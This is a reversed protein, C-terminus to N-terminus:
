RLRSSAKKGENPSSGNLVGHCAVCKTPSSESCLTHTCLTAPAEGAWPPAHQARHQERCGPRPHRGTPAWAVPSHPSALPGYHNSCTRRTFCCLALFLSTHWCGIAHRHGSDCGATLWIAVELVKDVALFIYARATWPANRISSEEIGVDKAEHARAPTNPDCDAENNPEKEAPTTHESVLCLLLAMLEALSACHTSVAM